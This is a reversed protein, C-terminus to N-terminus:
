LIFYDHCLPRYIQAYFFKIIAFKLLNAFRFSIMQAPPTAAAAIRRSTEFYERSFLYFVNRFHEM